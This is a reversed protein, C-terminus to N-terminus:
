AEPASDDEVKAMPPEAEPPPATIMDAASDASLPSAPAAAVGNVPAPKAPAAAAAAPLATVKILQGCKPCKVTKGVPVPKPPKLTVKCATCHIQNVTQPTVGEQVPSAPQKHTGQASPSIPAPKPAEAPAAAPKAPKGPQSTVGQASPMTPAPKQGDASGATP